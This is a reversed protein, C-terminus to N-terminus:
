FSLWILIIISVLSIYNGTKRIPTDTLWTEINYESKPLKFTILGYCFEEGRCDNNYHEIKKGNVKVQMGPFDFLPLRITADELVIVKGNQFNSGKKYDIFEAKGDLVEPIAPAENIPPFTAYIPLYDFISITMQKQWSIGSFKDNDTINLWDKPVFFNISLIFSAIILISGLIYAYKKCFYTFFGSLLCLLFISIALFRWPFQLYWLFPLQAWIFSSKMHIMFVTFLSLIFLLLTLISLKKYKKYAFLALFVAGIGVVWQTIGLSLNLLENPFGSSGYGWERSLFLKYLSVFHARYDFYGSLVSEVHAFKKEFLLPLLFFASLGFGLLGSWFVKFMNKWKEQHLWYLAWLLAIPAFIMTMLSHTTALLAISVGLLLVFKKGQRGAPLNGTKIVKYILYFILPFFIQAWFESLAGRVYVEVAKYPIYTYLISAVFGSWHNTLQSVLTFMALASLIYGVVFLVKVSDIYQFGIRHLGAGIYYPLPPYYNFQPYGYGYGADPVWRCPIQFDDLCKDMQQVRFAQLDDQMPFFGPRLLNWFVPIIFLIILVFWFYKLTIVKTVIKSIKSLM